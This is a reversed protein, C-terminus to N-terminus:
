FLGAEVVFHGAFLFLDACIDLPALLPCVTLNIHMCTTWLGVWRAQMLVGCDLPYDLRGYALEEIVELAFDRRDKAIAGEPWVPM